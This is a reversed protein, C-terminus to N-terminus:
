GTIRRGHHRANDRKGHGDWYRGLYDQYAKNIGNNLCLKSTWGLYTLRNINLIKRMTGDPKQPDFVVEGEFGVIEKIIGALEAISVERGSGVNIPIESAYHKLIHVLADALEDAELFERLPKGSGWLEVTSCGEIKANHMKLIMSPIVHSNQADYTDGIGYLNCPMASIFDCGYQLRYYQALKLGAIKALAYAENTPELTSELLYEEKIPQPCHKPYICSSGLFLVRSTGAEYAGRLINTAIMLNDYMFDAPATANAMIGGVKAAAIVIVDPKKRTIWARVAQQDRLDLADKDVTLLEADEQPLRRMLAGGVMGRHGAVWIRKGSLKFPTSLRGDDM